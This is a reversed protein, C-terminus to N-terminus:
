RAKPHLQKLLPITGENRRGPDRFELITWRGGRHGIEVVVDPKKHAACGGRGLVNVMFTGGAPAVSQVVYADCPDQANLYPDGDLGDIEDKARARATSDIRLWRVLERDFPVPGHTAANMVMDRGRPNAARPVYWSYFRQVLARASDAEARSRQQASLTGAACCLVVTFTLRTVLMYM